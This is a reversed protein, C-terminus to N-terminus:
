SDTFIVFSKLDHAPFLSLSNFTSFSSFVDKYAERESMCTVSSSNFWFEGEKLSREKVCVFYIKDVLWDNSESCYTESM